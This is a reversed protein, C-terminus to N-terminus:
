HLYVDARKEDKQKIYAALESTL